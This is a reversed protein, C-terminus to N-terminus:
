GRRRDAVRVIASRGNGVAAAAEVAARMTHTRQERPLSRMCTDARTVTVGLLRAEGLREIM